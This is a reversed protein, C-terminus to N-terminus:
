KKLYRAIWFPIIMYYVFQTLQQAMYGRSVIVYLIGNYSCLLAIAGFSTFNRKYNEWFLRSLMGLLFSIVIVGLWGFSIYAEVFYLFAAGYTITGLVALNAYRLYYGDPKWPFIARPIPMCVATLLPTFYIRENNDDFAEMVLGSFEYVMQNESAGKQVESANISYVKEIDLGQGYSRTMEIFGMALYFLIFLPIVVSYNVRKATPYLYYFCIFSIFLILLRFRFGELIFAISSLLLIGVLFLRSKKNDSAYAFFSALCFLSVLYTLYMTPHNYSATDSFEGAHVSNVVSFKFGNFIANFSFGIIFIIISLKLYHRKDNEFVSNSKSFLSLKGPKIKFGSIFSIYSILAGWNVYQSAINMNKGFYNVDSFFPIFIYYALYLAFFSIPSWKAAQDKSFFSGIYHFAMLIFLIIIPILATSNDMRFLKECTKSSDFM